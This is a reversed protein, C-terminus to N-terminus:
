SPDGGTRASAPDHFPNPMIRDRIVLMPHVSIAEFITAGDFRSLDYQCMVTMPRNRVLTNIGAEYRMLQDGGSAGRLAWTMEGVARAGVAGSARASAEIEGLRTLMTECSFSGDPCYADMACHPVLTAPPPWAGADLGRERLAAKLAEGPGTDAFYEVWEGEQLGGKAFAAGIRLREAADAFVHCIHLGQPYRDPTFGLSVCRACRDPSGLNRMM